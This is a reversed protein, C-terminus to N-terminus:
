KSEFEVCFCDEGLCGENGKINQIRHKRFEHKCKCIEKESITTMVFVM